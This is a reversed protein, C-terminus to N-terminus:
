KAHRNRWLVALVAGQALGSLVEAIGLAWAAGAAGWLSGGVVLGASGVVSAAVVCTMFAHRAGITILGIRGFATGLTIGLIAVGFGFAALRDIAVDSGFLVRTLWPGLMGFGALGVVGLSAHLLIVIRLRRAIAAERAEVVWGQLANGLASVSYQGIRYAKDGSVYRAAQAVPTVSAVITVALANYIGAATEAIVAPPHRRLVAVVETRDVRTLESGAVRLYVVAPGALMAVALFVPYWIAGGGALLIGTAALTAALRPLVETWLIPLARGVGIWFWTPALAAISMAGAMAAAEGRNAVPALILAVIVGVTNAIFWVPLRLHLSTALLRRREQTSAAAIIPPALTSFGLGAALAAFGGVSQGLAIAVWVDASAMRALVPLFIFPALLSLFPVGAFAVIRRALAAGDVTHNASSKLPPPKV